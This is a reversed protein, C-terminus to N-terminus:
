HYQPAYRRNGIGIVEYVLTINNNLVYTQLAIQLRRQEPQRLSTDWGTVVHWVAFNILKQVVYSRGNFPLEKAICDKVFM